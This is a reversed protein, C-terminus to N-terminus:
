RGLSQILADAVVAFDAPDLSGREVRCCAGEPEDCAREWGVDLIEGKSKVCSVSSRQPRLWVWRMM